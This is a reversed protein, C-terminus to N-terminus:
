SLTPVRSNLRKLCDPRPIIKRFIIGGGVGAKRPSGHDEVFAFSGPYHGERLGKGSGAERGEAPSSPGAPLSGEAGKKKKGRRERM